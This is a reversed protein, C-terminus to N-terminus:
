RYRASTMSALFASSTPSTLSTTGSSFSLSRTSAIARWMAWAGIVVSSAVLALRLRAQSSIPMRTCQCLELSRTASAETLLSTCSSIWCTNLSLTNGDSCARRWAAAAAAGVSPAAVVYILEHIEGIVRDRCCLRRRQDHGVAAHDREALQVGFALPDGRHQVAGTQAAAITHGQNQRITRLEEFDGPAALTGAEVVGGHVGVESGVFDGVDNVVGVCLRHEDVSRHAIERCMEASGISGDVDM